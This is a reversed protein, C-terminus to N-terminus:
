PIDDSTVDAALHAYWYFTQWESTVFKANAIGLDSTYNPIYSGDAKYSDASLLAVIATGNYGAPNTIPALGDASPWGVVRMDSRFQIKTYLSRNISVRGSGTEFYSHIHSGRDVFTASDYRRFIRTGANTTRQTEPGPAPFTGFNEAVGADAGYDDRNHKYSSPTNWSYIVEWVGDSARKGRLYSAGCEVGVSQPWIENGAAFITNWPVIKTDTVWSQTYNTEHVRGRDSWSFYAPMLGLHADHNGQRFSQIWAVSDQAVPAYDGGDLALVEIACLKPNQVGSTLAINITSGAILVDVPETVYANNAGVLAFLDIGSVSVEQATGAQITYGFTRQGVGTIGDWTEAFHLRIRYNKAPTVPISYSVAGYRDTQYLVDDTTGDIDSAVTSASGGSAHKDAMFETGSSATYAGGGCNIGFTYAGLAVAGAVATGTFSTAVVAGAIVAESLIFPAGSGPLGLAGRVFASADSKEIRAYHATESPNCAISFTVDVSGTITAGAGGLSGSATGTAVQVDDLTRYIKLLWDAGIGSRVTTAADSATAANRIGLKLGSSLTAAM